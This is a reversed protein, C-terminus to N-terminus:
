ESVDIQCQAIAFLAEGHLELVIFKLLNIISLQYNLILNGSKAEQLSYVM